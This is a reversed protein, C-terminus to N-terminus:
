RFRKTKIDVILHIRGVDSTNCGFHPRKHDFWWLEGQMMSVYEGAREDFGCYLNNELNTLLPLHFRDYTDAYLGEDVHKTIIGNPKLNVIIARGLDGGVIKHVREVLKRSELLIDWAPYNVAVIDSFVAEVTKDKAWRMFITETDTHPSGQTDQRATIDQFLSWNNRLEKVAPFVDIGSEILKFYNM